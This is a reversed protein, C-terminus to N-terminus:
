KNQVETPLLLATILYHAAYGHATTADTLVLSPYPQPPHLPPLLLPPTM